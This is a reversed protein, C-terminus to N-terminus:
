QYRMEFLTKFNIASCFSSNVFYAIINFSRGLFKTTIRIPEVPETNEGVINSQAELYLNHHSSSSDGIICLAM